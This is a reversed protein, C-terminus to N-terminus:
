SAVLRIFDGVANALLAPATQHAAHRQGALVRVQAHKFVGALQEWVGRRFPDTQEGVIMLVPLDIASVRELDPVCENLARLERPITHAAAVRARWSANARLVELEDPTVAGAKLMFTMVAQEREGAEVLEELSLILEEPVLVTGPPIRIPGGEYL